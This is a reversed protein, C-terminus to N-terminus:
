EDKIIKVKKPVDEAGIWQAIVYNRAFCISLTTGKMRQRETDEFFWKLSVVGFKNKEEYPEGYLKTWETRSNSQQYHIKYCQVFESDLFIQKLEQVMEFTLDKIAIDVDSIHYLERIPIQIWLNLIELKGLNGWHETEVLPRIDHEDIDGRKMPGKVGTIKLRNLQKPDFYELLAWFCIPQSISLEFEYIKCLRTSMEERLRAEKEDPSEYRAMLEPPRVSILLSPLKGYVKDSLELLANDKDSNDGVINFDFIVKLVDTGKRSGNHFAAEFDEFALDIFNVNEVLRQIQNENKIWSVICGSQDRLYDIKFDVRRCNNPELYVDMRLESYIGEPAVQIKLELLVSSPDFHELYDDFDPYAKRLREISPFDM